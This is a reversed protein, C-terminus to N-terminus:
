ARCEVSLGGYHDALARRRGQGHRAPRAARGMGVRQRFRRALVLAAAFLPAPHAGAHFRDGARVPTVTMAGQAAAIEGKSLMWGAQQTEALPIPVAFGGGYAAQIIENENSYV